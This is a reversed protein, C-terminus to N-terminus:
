ANCVDLKFSPLVLVQRNQNWDVLRGSNLPHIVM